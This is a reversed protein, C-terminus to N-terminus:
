VGTLCFRSRVCVSIPLIYLSKLPPSGIFRLRNTVTEPAAAAAALRAEFDADAATGGRARMFSPQWLAGVLSVCRFYKGRSPTRLQPPYRSIAPPRLDALTSSSMPIRSSASALPMATSQTAGGIRGDLWM